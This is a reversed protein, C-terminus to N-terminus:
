VRSKSLPQGMVLTDRISMKVTAPERNLESVPEVLLRARLGSVGVLGIHVHTASQTLAPNTIM